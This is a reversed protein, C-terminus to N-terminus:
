EKIFLFNISNNLFVTKYNYQGGSKQSLIEGSSFFGTYTSKNKLISYIIKYEKRLKEELFKKRGNCEVIMCTDPKFRIKKVFDNLRNKIDALMEDPSTILLKFKMGPFVRGRTILAKIREDYDVIARLYDINNQRDMIAIPYKLIDNKSKLMPGFFDLYFDMAYTDNIKCIKNNNVETIVFTPGIPKYGNLSLTEVKLNKNYIAIYVLADKIIQNNYIIYKNVAGPKGGLIGGFGIIHYNKNIRNLLDFKAEIEYFKVYSIFSFILKPIGESIFNKIFVSFRKRNVIDEKEALFIKFKSKKFKVARIVAAPPSLLKGTFPIHSTIGGVVPIKITAAYNLIEKIPFNYSAFIIFLDPSIEDKIKNIKTKFTKRNETNIYFEKIIM